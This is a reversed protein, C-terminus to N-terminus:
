CLWCSLLACANGTSIMLAQTVSCALGNHHGLGAGSRSSADTPMAVDNLRTLLVSDVTDPTVGSTLVATPLNQLSCSCSAPCPAEDHECPATPQHHPGHSYEIGGDGRHAADHPCCAAGDGRTHGHVVDSCFCIPPHVVLMAVAFLGPLHAILRSM